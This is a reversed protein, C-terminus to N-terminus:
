HYNGSHAEIADLNKLKQGCKECNMLNSPDDNSYKTNNLFVRSSSPPTSPRSINCESCADVDHHHTQRSPTAINNNNNNPGKSSKSNSGEFIGKNHHSSVYQPFPCCPCFRVQGSTPDLVVEHTVINNNSNGKSRPSCNESSSSKKSNRNIKRQEEKSSSSSSSRQLNRQQRFHHNPSGKPDHVEPKESHCPKCLSRKLTLLSSLVM